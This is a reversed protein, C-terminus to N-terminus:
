TFFILSVEEDTLDYRDKIIRIESQTFQAGNYENIKNSLRNPTIGLAEALKTQTDDHLVMKSKLLKANM